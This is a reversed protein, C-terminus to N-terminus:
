WLLPNKFCDLGVDESTYDRFEKHSVRLSKYLKDEPFFLPQNWWRDNVDTIWLNIVAEVPSTICRARNFIFKVKISDGVRIIRDFCAKYSLWQAKKTMRKFQNIEHIALLKPSNSAIWLSEIDTKGINKLEFVIEACNKFDFIANDYKMFVGDFGDIIAMVVEVDCHLDTIELSSVKSEIRFEPRAAFIESEKQEKRIKDEHQLRIKAARNAFYGSILAGLVAGLVGSFATIIISTPDM